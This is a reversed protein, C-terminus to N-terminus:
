EPESKTFVILNFDTFDLLVSEKKKAHTKVNIICSPCVPTVTPNQALVNTCLTLIKQKATQQVARGDM